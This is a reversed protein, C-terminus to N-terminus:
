LGWVRVWEGFVSPSLFEGEGGGIIVGDYDGDIDEGFEGM